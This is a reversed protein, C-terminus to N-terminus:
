TGKTRSNILPERWCFSLLNAYKASRPKRQWSAVESAGGGSENARIKTLTNALVRKSNFKHIILTHSDTGSRCLRQM